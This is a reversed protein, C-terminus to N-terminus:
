DNLLPRQEVTLATAAPGCRGGSQMKGVPSASLGQKLLGVTPAPNAMSPCAAFRVKIKNVAKMKVIRAYESEGCKRFHISSFCPTAICRIRNSLRSLAPPSNSYRNSHRFTFIRHSPRNLRSASLSAAEIRESPSIALDQNVRKGFLSIESVGWFDEERFGLTESRLGRQQATGACKAKKEQEDQRRGCREVQWSQREGRL